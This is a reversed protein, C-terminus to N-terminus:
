HEADQHRDQLVQQLTALSLGQRQARRCERKAQELITICDELSLSDPSGVTVVKNGVYLPMKVLGNSGSTPRRRQSAESRKVQGGSAIRQLLVQRQAPDPNRVIAYATSPKLRGSDILQRAEAPLELLSMLQTIMSKSKHLRAALEAHSCQLRDKLSQCFEAMEMPKLGTRHVNATLQIIGLTAADPREDLVLAQVEATETLKLAEYRCQGDVIGFKGDPLRYVIIPQLQGVDNLSGALESLMTPDFQKRPQNPDPVCLTLPITEPTM